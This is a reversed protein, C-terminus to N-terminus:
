CIEVPPRILGTAGRLRLDFTFVQFAFSNLPIRPPLETGRLAEVASTELGTANAPALGIKGEM